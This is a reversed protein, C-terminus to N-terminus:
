KAEQEKGAAKADGAAPTAAAAEAGPAQADLAEDPRKRETQVVVLTRSPSLMVEVGDGLKLDKVQLTQNLELHSVDVEVKAPIDHPKAFIPLSRFVVIMEGGQVVGAAKGVTHFPVMVRVPLDAQVRYFDVHVFSRKVPHIQLEKVMALEDGDKGFDLKILANRGLETGLVKALDKPSVSLQRPEMQTGYFVAPLLGQARLQRAPGKGKLSRPSAQITQIEM